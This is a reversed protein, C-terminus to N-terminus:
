PHDATGSRAQSMMAAVLLGLVLMLAGALVTVTPVTSDGLAKECLNSVKTTIENLANPSWTSGCKHVADGGYDISHPSLGLFLGVGAVLVGAAIVTAVVPNMGRRM